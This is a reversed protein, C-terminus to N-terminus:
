YDQSQSLVRLLGKPDKVGQYGHFQHDRKYSQYLNQRTQESEKLIGSVIEFGKQIRVCSLALSDVAQNVKVLQNSNSDNEDPEELLIEPEIKPLLAQNNKRQQLDEAAQKWLKEEKQLKSLATMLFATERWLEQNRPLRKTCERKRSLRQLEKLQELEVLRKNHEEQWQKEREEEVGRREEQSVKVALRAAQIAKYITRRCEVIKDVDEPSDRQVVKQLEKLAQDEQYAVAPLLVDQFSLLGVSELLQQDPYERAEEFLSEVMARSPLSVKAPYVYQILREDHVQAQAQSQSPRMLPSPVESSLLAMHQTDM